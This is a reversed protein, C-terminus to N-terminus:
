AAAQGEQWAAILRECAEAIPAVERFDRDRWNLYTAVYGAIERNKRDWWCTQHEAAYVVVRGSQHTDIVEHPACPGGNTGPRQEARYRPWAPARTIGPTPATASM